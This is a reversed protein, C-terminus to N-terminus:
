NGTHPSFRHRNFPERKEKTLIEDVTAHVKHGRFPQASGCAAVLLEELAGDKCADQVAEKNASDIQLVALAFGKVASKGTDDVIKQFWTRSTDGPKIDPNTSSLVKFSVVFADYGKRAQM